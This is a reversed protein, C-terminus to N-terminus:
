SSVQGPETQAKQGIGFGGAGLIAAASIGFAQLDVPNGQVLCTVVTAILTGLAAAIGVRIEDYTQGDIGTLLDKVFKGM